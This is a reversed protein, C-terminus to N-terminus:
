SYSDKKKSTFSYSDKMVMTQMSKIQKSCLRYGSDKGLQWDKAPKHIYWLWNICTREKPLSGYMCVLSKKRGQWNIFLETDYQQIFLVLLM